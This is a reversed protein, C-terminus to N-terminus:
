APKSVMTLNTPNILELVLVCSCSCVLTAWVKTPRTLWKHSALSGHRSPAPSIYYLSPTPIMELAAIVAQHTDQELTVKVPKLHSPTGRWKDQQQANPIQPAEKLWDQHNSRTHGQRQDLCLVAREIASNTEKFTCCLLDKKCKCKWVWECCV